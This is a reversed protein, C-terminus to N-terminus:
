SKRVRNAFWGIVLGVLITHAFIAGYLFEGKPLEGPGGAASMPVIVTNMLFMLSLGYLPGSIQWFRKIPPLLQAVLIFVAAMVLAIVFHAALGMGATSWGGQSAADQGVLGAAISQLIAEPEINRAVKYHICAYAIDGLGAVFGAGLIAPVLKM